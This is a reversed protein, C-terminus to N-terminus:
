SCILPVLSTKCDWRVLVDIVDLSPLYIDGHNHLSSSQLASKMGIYVRLSESVTAPEQNNQSPFRLREVHRFISYLTYTGIRVM